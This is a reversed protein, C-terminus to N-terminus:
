AGGAGFAAAAVAVLSGGVGTGSCARDLCGNADDGGKRKAHRNQHGLHIPIEEGM